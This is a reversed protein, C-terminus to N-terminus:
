VHANILKLELKLVMAIRERSEKKAFLTSCDRDMMNEKESLAHRATIRIM